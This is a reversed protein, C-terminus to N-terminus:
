LTKLLADGAGTTVLRKIAPALAPRLAVLRLALLCALTRDDIRGGATGAQRDRWGFKTSVLRSSKVRGLLRAMAPSIDAPYLRVMM